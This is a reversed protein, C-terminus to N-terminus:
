AVVRLRPGVPMEAAAAAVVEVKFYDLNMTKFEDARLILRRGNVRYFGELPDDRQERPPLLRQEAPTAESALPRRYAGALEIRDLTGDDAFRVDELLGLYLYPERGLEVVVAVLALIDGKPRPAASGMVLRLWRSLRSGAPPTEGSRLALLNDWEAWRRAGPEDTFRSPLASASEDASLEWARSCRAAARAILCAILFYGVIALPHNVVPALDAAANPKNALLSLFARANFHLGWPRAVDLLTILPLHVCVTAVAAELAEDALSRERRFVGALTAHRRYVIGPLFAAFVVLAPLAINM